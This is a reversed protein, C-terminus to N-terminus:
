EHIEGGEWVRVLYRPGAATTAVQVKVPAETPRWCCNTCGGGSYVDTVYEVGGITGGNDHWSAPDIGLPTAVRGLLPALDPDQCDDPLDHTATLLESPIASAAVPAVGLAATAGQCAAGAPQSCWLTVAGAAIPAGPVIPPPMGPVISPQPAAVQPLTPMVPPPPPSTSPTFCCASATISLAVVPAAFALARM